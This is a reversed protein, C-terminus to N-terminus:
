EESHYLYYNAILTAEQDDLRTFQLPHSTRLVKTTSIMSSHAINQLCESPLLARQVFRNLDSSSRGVTWISVTVTSLPVSSEYLGSEKKM